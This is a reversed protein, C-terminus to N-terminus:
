FNEFDGENCTCIFGGATNTCTAVEDCNDERLICEDVDNIPREPLETPLATHQHVLPKPEIKVVWSRSAKQIGLRLAATERTKPCPKEGGKFGATLFVVHIRCSDQAGVSITSFGSVQRVIGYCNYAGYFGYM